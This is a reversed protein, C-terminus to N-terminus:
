NYSNYVWNYSTPPGGQLKMWADEPCKEEPCSKSSKNSMKSMSRVPALAELQRKTRPPPAASLTAEGLYIDAQIQKKLNKQEPNYWPIWWWSFCCGGIKPSSKNSNKNSANGAFGLWNLKSHKKNSTIKQLGEAITTTPTHM